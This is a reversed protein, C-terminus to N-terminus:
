FAARESSCPDDVIQRHYIEGDRAIARWPRAAYLPIHLQLDSDDLYTCTLDTQGYRSGTALWKGHPGIVGAPM